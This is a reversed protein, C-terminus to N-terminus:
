SSNRHLRIEERHIVSKFALRLASPRHLARQLVKSGRCIQPSSYTDCEAHGSVCLGSPTSSPAAPLAPPLSSFNVLSQSSFKYVAFVHTENVIVDNWLSVSFPLSHVKQKLPMCMKCLKFPQLTEPIALFDWLALYYLMCHFLNISICLSYHLLFPHIKPNYYSPDSHFCPKHVSFVLWLAVPEPAPFFSSLLSAINM